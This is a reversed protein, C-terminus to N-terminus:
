HGAPGGALPEPPPAGMAIERPNLPAGPFFVKQVGHVVVRDTPELGSTVVRLNEAMRGPVITKRQARNGEGVVYVYKRDQDTLVAKDDILMATAKHSGSLRVRAFLGPLLRGDPNDISARAHMTGSRPDVRNDLFDLVGEHPYGEEDILGMRVVRADKPARSLALYASEDLTTLQSAPTVLNGPTVLARSVRGDIPARVQTFDLNLRASSLSAKTSDLAAKSEGERANMRELEVPAIAGSSTLRETRARDSTALTLDSQARRQEAELRAVQQQFPRPDIQFLLAGKKVRAGETFHVSTVAGDVRPHLEVTNTAELRGSFDSSDDV